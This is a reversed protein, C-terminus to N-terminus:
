DKLQVNIKLLTLIFNHYHNMLFNLSWSKDHLKKNFETAWIDLNFQIDKPIPEIESPKKLETITTEQKNETDSFQYYMEKIEDAIKNPKDRVQENRVIRVIYGM